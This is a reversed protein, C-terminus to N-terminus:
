LLRPNLFLMLVYNNQYMLKGFVSQEILEVLKSSDSVSILSIIAFVVYVILVGKLLGYIIGGAKNTQKILPLGAIIDLMGRTFLLIVRAFVYVILFIIINIIIRTINDATKEITANITDEAVNKLSQNIYGGVSSQNSKDEVIDENEHQARVKEIVIAKISEDLGTNNIIINSVPKFLLFAIIIALFFSVIKFAVGILGRRYGFFVCIGIIALVILDVLIWEM